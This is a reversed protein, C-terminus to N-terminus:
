VLKVNNINDRNEPDIELVQKIQEGTEFDKAIDDDIKKLNGGTDKCIYCYGCNLNCLATTFLTIGQFKPEMEKKFM